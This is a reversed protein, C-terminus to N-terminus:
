ATVPPFDFTDGNRSAGARAAFYHPHTSKVTEISDSGFLVVQLSSDRYRRETDVFVDEAMAADDFEFQEVLQENQADYILLFYRLSRTM